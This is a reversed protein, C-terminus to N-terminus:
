ASAREEIIRVDNQVENLSEVPLVIQQQNIATQLSKFQIAAEARSTDPTENVLATGRVLGGNFYEGNRGQRSTPRMAEVAQIGGARKIDEQSWVIEGKHVIGASEYKGGQGTYGGESFGVGAIKAVMALGGAATIGAMVAALVPNAAFAQYTKLAALYTNVVGSAIAIGKAAEADDRFAQGAQSLAKSVIAANQQSLLASHEKVDDSAETAAIETDTYSLLRGEAEDHRAQEREEAEATQEERIKMRELWNIAYLGEWQEREEAMEREREHEAEKAEQAEARKEKERTIAEIREDILNIEQQFIEFTGADASLDAQAKKTEQRLKRLGALSDESPDSGANQPNKLDNIEKQLDRIMRQQASEAEHKRIEADFYEIRAIHGDYEARQRLTLNELGQQEMDSVMARSRNLQGQAMNAKDTADSIGKHQRIINELQEGQNELEDRYLASQRTHKPMDVGDIAQAIRDQGSAVGAMADTVDNMTNAFGELVGHVFKSMVGEGDEIELIFGEWASKAAKAKNVFSEGMAEATKDTEGKAKELKRALEEAKDGSSALILGATVARAGFLDFSTKTKNTSTSIENMAEDFTMGSEALKIFIRRLSTGATSADVNRDVLTGLLATTREISAGAAGAVPGVSKMANEFKELNLASSNFAKTMVDAVRTTESADLNFARVTGAAVQASKALDEGTAQALGLIAKQSALIEDKSFGLKTLAVQLEGVQGATFVTIRGLDKASESLAEIEERTSGTIAALKTMQQDFNGITKFANGFLRMAATVGVFQVAMTRLASNMSGAMKDRFRTGAKTLGALDNSAERIQSRTKKLEIGTAAYAKAVKRFQASDRKGQAELSKMEKKLSATQNALDRELTKLNTFEKTTQGLDVNVGIFIDKRAM